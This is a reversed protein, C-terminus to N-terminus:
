TYERLTQMQRKTHLFGNLWQELEDLRSNKKVTKLAKSMIQMNKISYFDDDNTMTWLPQVNDFEIHAYTAAGDLAAPWYVEHKLISDKCGNERYLQRLEDQHFFVPLPGAAIDYFSEAQTLLVEAAAEVNMFQDIPKLLKVDISKPLQGTVIWRTINQKEEENSALTYLRDCGVCVPASVVTSKPELVAASLPSTELNGDLRVNCESCRPQPPLRKRHVLQIPDRMRRKKSILVPTKSIIHDSGKAFRTELRKRRRDEFRQRRVLLQKAQDLFDVNYTAHATRLKKRLEEPLVPFTNTTPDVM